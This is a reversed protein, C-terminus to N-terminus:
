ELRRYLIQVLCEARGTAIGAEVELAAQDTLVVLRPWLPLKTATRPASRFILFILSKKLESGGIRVGTGGLDFTVESTGMFRPSKRATQITSRPANRGTRRHVRRGKLKGAQWEIWNRCGSSVRRVIPAADAAFDGPTRPPRATRNMQRSE